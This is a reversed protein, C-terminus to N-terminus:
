AQVLVPSKTLRYMLYGFNFFASLSTSLAVSAPGWGLVLVFISNLALNSLMSLVSGQMPIRYNKQAYFAPAAILILTMPLLGAAYGWLCLVTKETAAQGFDGNGYVLEILQRGLFFLALTAPVMLLANKKMTDFLIRRYAAYNGQELSRSLPPLAASSLAIGILALPLQQLRIAYWLLAPGEPDAFRAFLPDVASNIQTAAVGILSLTFPAYFSTITKPNLRISLKSLYPKLSQVTQPITAAWQALCAANIMLAMAAVNRTSIATAIWVLNFLVPAASSVFYHKECQLLSLNLGYLCIFLLSPLMMVTLRIVQRNGESLALSPAAFWLAGMAAIILIALMAALSLALNCFFEAGKEPDKQRIEEFQPVFATQLAGEGFIRRALHSLRFALLFAAVEPSVGFVAAMTADRLLGTSRSLLTGSFFKSASRFISQTNDAM